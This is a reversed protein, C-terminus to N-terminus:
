AAIKEEGNVFEVGEIVQAFRKPGNLIRWSKQAVRCLQFVMTLATARSLCGRTKATRLKVTAFTSEIPNTTRLHKWHEAPFDYFALLEARDKSLCEVAKPYKAEYKAVFRDFAQDAAERTEAMWIEHVDAKAKGHVSKPMKNLVNGTKHFWCRQHNGDPYVKTFAKWFGLAGDGTVLKPGDGLGRAKLDELVELWSQESERYGDEVAILEKKGSETAGMIVLLCQKQDLRANVYVGDVWWYVYRKKSLDRGKWTEFDAKWRQKLRSITTASLGPADAGVLAALAEEFDGSSIGKLYLWPLFEEFSKSRRLYPPVIKSSFRIRSDDGANQTRDRARPVQVPISGIGTQVAREPLFGNRVVRRRGQEDVLERYGGLFTEVEANLAAELMSRAGERAIETLVDQPGAEPGAMSVVNNESVAYGAEKTPHHHKDVV